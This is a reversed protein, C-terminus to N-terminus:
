NSYMTVTTTSLKELDDEEYKEANDLSNKSRKSLSPNEVMAIAAAVATDM